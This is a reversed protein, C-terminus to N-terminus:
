SAAPKPYCADIETQSKILYVRITYDGMIPSQKILYYKTTLYKYLKQIM